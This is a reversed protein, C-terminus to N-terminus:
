PIIEGKYVQPIGCVIEFVQDSLAALRNNVEGLLRMYRLTDGAYEAGGSCVENSVIVLERCREQLREVGRVVADAAGEGCGAPDFLENACLNGIDELLVACGPPPELSELNVYCEVTQFGLGERQARHKQIRSAAEAGFPEMTAIYLRPASEPPKCLLEEAFASKGSAAGGVVLATM